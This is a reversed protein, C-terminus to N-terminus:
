RYLFVISLRLETVVPVSHVIALSDFIVAQGIQDIVHHATDLADYWTIGQALSSQLPVVVMALHGERTNDRHPPIFSGQPYVNIYAQDLEMGALRPALRSLETRMFAPCADHRLSYYHGADGAIGVNVFRKARNTFRSPEREFLQCAEERLAACLVPDCQELRIM